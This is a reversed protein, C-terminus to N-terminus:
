RSEVIDGADIRGRKVPLTRAGLIRRFNNFYSPLGEADFGPGTRLEYHLHPTEASGSCGIRAIQQGPRVADGVKVNVSGQKLHALLSYEGNLHDILVYNGYFLLPQRALGEVTLNRGFLDEPFDNALAAVRGAGPAHLPVGFGLYDEFREGSGTKQNGQEDVVFFDYGYRMFNAGFGLRGAVPHLYDLRRHHSYFDHGSTVQVRRRVPLTLSTKTEYHAPAVSVEARAEAGGGKPRFTFDFRLRTLELHPAFTHFPNFVLARGRGAVERNAVTQISPSFGGSDVARRFALRHGADYVSVEVRSLQLPEDTLNEIVFDFNLYQGAADREILVQRPRATVKVAPGDLLVPLFAFLVSLLLCV